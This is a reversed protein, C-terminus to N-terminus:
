SEGVEKCDMLLLVFTLTHLMNINSQTRFFSSERVGLIHLVGCTALSDRTWVLCVSRFFLWFSCLMMCKMASARM